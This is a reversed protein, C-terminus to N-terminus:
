FGLWIVMHWNVPCHPPSTHISGVKTAALRVSKPINYPWSHAGRVEMWWRRWTNVGAGKDGTGLSSLMTMVQLMMCWQVNGSQPAPDLNISAVTMWWMIVKISVVIVLYTFFLPFHSSSSSLLFLTLACELLIYLRTHLVDTYVLRFFCYLLNKVQITLPFKWPFHRQRKQSLLCQKMITESIFPYRSKKWKIGHGAEYQFTQIFRWSKTSCNFPYVNLVM